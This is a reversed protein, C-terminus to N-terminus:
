LHRGVRVVNLVLSLAATPASLWWVVRAVQYLASWGTPRVHARLGLYREVGLLPSQAADHRAIAVRCTLYSALAVALAILLARDTALASM